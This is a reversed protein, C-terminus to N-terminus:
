SDGLYQFIVIRGNFTDAVYIRDHDDSWVGAPLYFRGITNGTGGIPLLFDGKDNFILLYDYYSEVVYLNGDKDVTNGKPRPMDGVYLGRRGVSRLYRGETDFLQVRSNLTDTVYLTGHWLTVYTPGNFEGAGEGRQGISRQWMGDDSFVQVKHAQSDAVYIEGAVPDRALGTPRELVDGGFGGLPEGDQGDLRIIRGLDADAVLIQGNNGEVIGVPTVFRTRAGAMEWIQVTSRHRDFAFVASRGVDTVLIRGDTTVLGSQPRQLALPQHKSSGLGALWGLLRRGFSQEQRPFNQEGLLQGVYRYRPKDPVPPWVMSSRDTIFSLILGTQADTEAPPTAPQTACAALCLCVLLVTVPQRRVAFSSRRLRVPM